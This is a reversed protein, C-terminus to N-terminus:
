KNFGLNRPIDWLGKVIQHWSGKGARDRGMRQRRSINEYYYSGKLGQNCLETSKCMGNVRGESKERGLNELIKKSVLQLIMERTFSESETLM